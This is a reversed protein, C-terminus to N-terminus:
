EGTGTGTGAAAQNVTVRFMEFGPHDKPCVVIAGTRAEAATNAAIDYTLVPIGEVVEM